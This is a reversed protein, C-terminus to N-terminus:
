ARMADDDREAGPRGCSEEREGVPHCDWKQLNDDHQHAGQHSGHVSQLSFLMDPCADQSYYRVYTGEGSDETARDMTTAILSKTQKIRGTLNNARAWDQKINVKYSAQAAQCKLAIGIVEFLGVECNGFTDLGGVPNVTFDKRVGM